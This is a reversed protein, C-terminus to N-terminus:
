RFWYACVQVIMKLIDARISPDRPNFIHASDHGNFLDQLNSSIPLTPAAHSPVAMGTLESSTPALPVPQYGGPFGDM